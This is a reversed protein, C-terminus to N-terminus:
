NSPSITPELLPASLCSSQFFLSPPHSSVAPFSFCTTHARLPRIPHSPVLPNSSVIDLYATSFHEPSSHFFLSILLISFCFLPQKNPFHRCLTHSSPCPSSNPPTDARSDTSPSVLQSQISPTTLSTVPPLSSTLRRRTVWPLLFTCSRHQPRPRLLTSSATSSASCHMTDIMFLLFTDPSSLCHFFGIPSFLHQRHHLPQRREQELHNRPHSTTSPSTSPAAAPSTSSADTPSTSPAAVAVYNASTARLFSVKKSRAIRLRKVKGFQKFFGEMQEEYFGHPIHGIYIVTAKSTVEEKHLKTSQGVELPLFDSSQKNARRAASVLAKKTLKKRLSKKAKAGMKRIRNRDTVRALKKRRIGRADKESSLGSGVM